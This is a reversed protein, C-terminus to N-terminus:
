EDDDDEPEAKKAPADGIVVGFDDTELHDIGDPLFQAKFEHDSNRIGMVKKYEEIAEYETSAEVVASKNHLLSVIWFGEGESPIANAAVVKRVTRKAM